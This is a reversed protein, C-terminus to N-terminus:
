ISRPQDQALRSSVFTFIEGRLVSLDSLFDFLIETERHAGHHIKKYTGTMQYAISEVHCFYFRHFIFPIGGLRLLVVFLVADTKLFGGRYEFVRMYKEMIIVFM